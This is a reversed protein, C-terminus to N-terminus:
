CMNWLFSIEVRNRYSIHIVLRVITTIYAEITADDSASATTEFYVSESWESKGYNNGDVGVWVEYETASEIGSIDYSNVSSYFVKPTEVDEDTSRKKLKPLFWKSQTRTEIIMHYYQKLIM